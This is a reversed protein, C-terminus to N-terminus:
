ACFIIDCYCQLVVVVLQCGSVPAYGTPCNLRKWSNTNM